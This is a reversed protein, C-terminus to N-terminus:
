ITPGDKKSRSLIHLHNGCLKRAIIAFILNGFFGRLMKRQNYVCYCESEIIIIIVKNVEWSQFQESDPYLQQDPFSSSMDNFDSNALSSVSDAAPKQAWLASFRM